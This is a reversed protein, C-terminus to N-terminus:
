ARSACVQPRNRGGVSHAPMSIACRRLLQAAIDLVQLRTSHSAIVGADDALIDALAEIALAADVLDSKAVPSTGVPAVPLRVVNSLGNKIACFAQDVQQQPGGAPLWAAVDLHHDFRLGAKGGECWIVRGTAALEGRGISLHEGLRPLAAGEILAGDPSMNRIKVPGSVTEATMSALVFM